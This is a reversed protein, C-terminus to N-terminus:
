PNEVIVRRLVSKMEDMTYPKALVASFGFEFPNSMVADESYGSSVILVASPDIELIERGAELGGVGSVVTMDLIVADFKQGHRLSEVYLAAAEGGERASTVSYGLSKLMRVTVNRVSEEDDMVLVSGSCRASLDQNTSRAPLPQNESAPLFVSFSSGEGPRSVFSIRGGHKQVISHSISLGLGSAGKKTTFFPDFIRSQSEWPIGRGHDRITVKVWSGQALGATEDSESAVNEASVSIVGGEPLAQRANILLNSFVQSLQGEDAWVPRLDSAFSFEPRANAGSLSLGASERLLTEVSVTQKRTVDGRSFTLLQRTLDKARPFATLAKDLYQALPGGPPVVSRALDIYGLIAALLNNFDHAIGGALLGLAELKQTRILEEELQKRLTINKRISVVRWVGGSPRSVPFLTVEFYTDRKKLPFLTHSSDEEGIRLEPIVVTEGAFAKKVEATLGKREILPDDFIKFRDILAEPSKLEFLEISARNIMKVTGDADYIEMPYPMQEVIQRLSYESERLRAEAERRATIDRIIGRIAVPRGDRLVAASHVEGAFRSGDKRVFTREGVVAEGQLIRAIAARSAPIDEKIMLDHVTLKGVTEELTYGFMDLGTKNAYTLTGTLDFEYIADTAYEALERYKEESALLARYFEDNVTAPTTRNNKQM